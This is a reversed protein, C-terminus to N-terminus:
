RDLRPHGPRLRHGLRLGAPNASRLLVASDEVYDAADVRLRGSARWGHDAERREAFLFAHQVLVM